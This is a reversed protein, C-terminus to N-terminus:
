SKLSFSALVGLGLGFCLGLIFSNILYGLVGGFVVMMILLPCRYKDLKIDYPTIIKDNWHVESVKNSSILYKLDDTLAVDLYEKDDEEIDKSLLEYICNAVRDNVEFLYIAKIVKKYEFYYVFGNNDMCKKIKNMIRSDCSIMDVFAEKNNLKRKSMTTTDIDKINKFDIKM